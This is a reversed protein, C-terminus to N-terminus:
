KYIQLVIWLSCPSRRQVAWMAHYPNEVVNPGAHYHKTWYTDSKALFCLLCRLGLRHLSIGKVKNEETERQVVIARGCSVFDWLFEANIGWLLSLASYRNPSVSVTIATGPSEFVLQLVKRTRWGVFTLKEMGLMRTDSIVVVVVSNPLVWPNSFRIQVWILKYCFELTTLHNIPLDWIIYSM